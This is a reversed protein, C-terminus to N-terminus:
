EILNLVEKKNLEGHLAAGFGFSREVTTIEEKRHLGPVAEMGLHLRLLYM